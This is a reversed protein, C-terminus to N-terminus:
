AGAQLRVRDAVVANYQAAEDIAMVIWDGAALREFSYTHDPATRQVRVVRLSQQEILVVKGPYATGVARVQGSISHPGNFPSWVGLRKPLATTSM